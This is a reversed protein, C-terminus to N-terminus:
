GATERCGIQKLALIRDQGARCATDDAEGTGAFRSAEQFDDAEVHAAGRRVDRMKITFIFTGEFSFHGTNAYACWHHQDVRNCCAAAGDQM